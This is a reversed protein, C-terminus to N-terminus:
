EKLGLLRLKDREKEVLKLQRKVLALKSQLTLVRIITAFAGILLGVSFTALLLLPLSIESLQWRYFRVDVLAPNDGVFVAGTVSVFAMLLIFFVPKLFRM